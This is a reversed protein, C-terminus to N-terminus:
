QQAPRDKCYEIRIMNAEELYEAIQSHFLPKRKIQRFLATREELSLGERRGIALVDRWFRDAIEQNSAEMYLRLRQSVLYAAFYDAFPQNQFIQHLYHSKM